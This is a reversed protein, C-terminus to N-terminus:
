HGLQARNTTADIPYERMSVEMMALYKVLILYANVVKAEWRERTTATLSSIRFHSKIQEKRTYPNKRKATVSILSSSTMFVTITEQIKLTNM